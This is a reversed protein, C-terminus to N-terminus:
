HFINRKRFHLTVTLKGREFPVLEGTDDRLNIELDQFNKKQVPIYHINQYTVAVNDGHHGTVPVVRLLPAMADGIIRPEVIDCYVYISHIPDMDINFRGLEIDPGLVRGSEDLGLLDCIERGMKIQYGVIKSWVTGTINDYKFEFAKDNAVSGAVRNSEDEIRKLLTEKTYYGAPIVFTSITNIDPETLKGCHFRRNANKTINYWTHPYQIEVM